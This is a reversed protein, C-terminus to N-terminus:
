DLIEYVEEMILAEDFLQNLEKINTKNISFGMNTNQTQLIARSEGMIRYCFDKESCNNLAKRFAVLEHKDFCFSANTFTMSYRMCCKCLIISGKDSKALEINSSQDCM